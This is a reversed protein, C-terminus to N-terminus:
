KEGEIGIRTKKAMDAIHKKIRILWKPLIVKEKVKRPKKLGLAILINEDKPMYEGRTKAIRNLTGAKIIPAFDRAIQRYSRGKKNERLLWKAFRRHNVTRNM